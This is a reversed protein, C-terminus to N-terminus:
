PSLQRYTESHKPMHKQFLEEERIIDKAIRLSEALSKPKIKLLKKRIRDSSLGHMFVEPIEAEVRCPIDELSSFHTHLFSSIRDAFLQIPEHTGQRMARLETLLSYTDHPTDYCSALFATFEKFTEEPHTTIRNHITETVPECSRYLAVNKKIFDGSSATYIDVSRIWHRFDTAVGTFKNVTHEVIRLTGNLLIAQNYCAPNVINPIFHQQQEAGEPMDIVM